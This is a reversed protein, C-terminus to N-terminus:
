TLSPALPASARVTAIDPEIHGAAGIWRLALVSIDDAQQQDSAFTRVDQIVSRTIRQVPLAGVDRLVIQLRQPTYFDRSASLAETVGDTFLFLADGPALQHRATAFHLGKCLALAPAHGGDLPAVAGEAGLLFASPHGANAYEVVGTDTDLVLILLTVFMGADAEECLEDNVHALAVPLTVGSLVNAKILAKSVAMFLAAPVGKGAVDGILVCLRREDVLFFDYFDGGVERAPRVVAHVDFEGRDPFAPFVKPLLSMQIGRAASMEGELREKVTTTYRLEQMRMQLDRTMKGFADALHRVESTAGRTDIQLELNGAAVEQAAAALRGIPRSVSRAVLVIAGFLLALGLLGIALLEALLRNADAQVEERPFVVALSLAGDLIPSFAVWAERGGDPERTLMWGDEGNAMRAGLKPHLEQVMRNMILSPNPHTIFRGERSVLFGYGRQGMTIRQVATTLKSVPMDITAIGWFQEQRRFPLARTIMVVNGGGDDFFPETWIPRGEDRPQRYWEWQPYNYDPTGLQVFELKGAHRYWYPGYDRIEASFGHPKFAIASGYIEPNAEVVRRLYAEVQETTALAGTEMELGIMDPIKEVHRLIAELEAAHQRAAIQARAQTEESLRRFSRLSASAVVAAFLLAAPLGVWLILRAPLSQKM